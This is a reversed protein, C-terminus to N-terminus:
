YSMRGGGNDMTLLIALKPATALGQLITCNRPVIKDLPGMPDWDDHWLSISQGNGLIVGIRDRICEHTQLIKRRSWSADWPIPVSWFSHGRLRYSHIWKVWLSERRAVILWAHFVMLSVNWISLPRLGLGSESKPKCVDKWAVKVQAEVLDGGSWLFARMKKEMAKTVSSPLVFISAWYVQMSALVSQVLQFRGAFFLFKNKWSNLRRDIKELLPM